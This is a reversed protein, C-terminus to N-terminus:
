KGASAVFGVVIGLGIWKGASLIKQYWPGAAVKVAEEGAKRTDDIVKQAAKLERGQEVVRAELARSHADCSEMAAEGASVAEQCATFSELVHLLREGDSVPFCIEAGAPSSAPPSAPLDAGSVRFPLLFISIAGCLAILRKQSHKRM